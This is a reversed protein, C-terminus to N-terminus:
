NLCSSSFCNQPPPIIWFEEHKNDTFCSCPVNQKQIKYQTHRQGQTLTATLHTQWMINETITAWNDLTPSCKLIWESITTIGSNECIQKGTPTSSLISMYSGNLSIFVFHFSVYLIYIYFFYILFPCWLSKLNKFSTLMKGAAASLLRNCLTSAWEHITHKYANFQM